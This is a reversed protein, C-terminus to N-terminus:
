NESPREVHDIVLFEVRGKVPVLKLGLQKQLAEFISPGSPEKPPTPNLNTRGGNKGGSDSFVTPAFKLQFDFIGTFGTEDLVPRDLLSDFNLGQALEAMKMEHGEMMLGLKDSTIKVENCFYVGPIFGARGGAALHDIDRPVCGGEKLPELKLGNKAVTLAYVAAEKTERHVKLHFRDELLAQLMPGSMQAVGANGDAQAAVDYEDSRIWSAGGTIELLQHSFSVGNAFSVYAFQILRDLPMCSWQVRGPSLLPREDRRSSCAKNLKVSAVEFKPPATKTQTQGVTIAPASGILMAAAIIRETTIHPM